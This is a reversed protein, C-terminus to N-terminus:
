QSLRSSWLSIGWEFNASELATKINEAVKFIDLEDQEPRYPIGFGGGIDIFQIKIGTEIFIDKVPLIVIEMMKTWYSPDIVCSGTMIHIGFNEIGNYKALKYSEIIRDKSMGFKSNEGGLVNSKTESDTEGFMPNYRFCLTKVLDKLEPIPTSRVHGNFFYEIFKDYAEVLNEFGDLDDLNILINM